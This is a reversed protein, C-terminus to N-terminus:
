EEAEEVGDTEVLAEEVTDAISQLADRLTSIRRADRKKDDRKVGKQWGFKQILQSSITLWFKPSLLKSILPRSITKRQLALFM